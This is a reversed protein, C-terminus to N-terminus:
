VMSRPHKRQHTIPQKPSSQLPIEGPSPEHPEPVQKPSSQLDLANLKDPEDLVIADLVQTPASPLAIEEPSPKLPKPVQNPSPQAPDKPIDSTEAVAPAPLALLAAPKVANNPSAQSGRPEADPDAELVLKKSIKAKRPRRKRPSPKPEPVSDSAAAADDIQTDEALKQAQAAARIASLQEQADQPFPSINLIPCHTINVNNM